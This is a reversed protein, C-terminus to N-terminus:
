TKRKDVLWQTHRDQSCPTDVGALGAEVKSSCFLSLLHYHVAILDMVQRIELKRQEVGRKLHVHEGAPATLPIPSILRRM